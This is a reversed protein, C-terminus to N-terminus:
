TRASLFLMSPTTTLNRCPGRAVNQARKPIIPIGAGCRSVLWKNAEDDLKKQREEEEQRRREGEEREREEREEEKL